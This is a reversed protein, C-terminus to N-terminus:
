KGKKKNMQMWLTTGSGILAIISLGLALTGKSDASNADTTADKGAMTTSSDKLDNVVKTKSFPGFESFDPNGNEDKPQEDETKTWSVVSGDSYTQEVKWQLETEEAPVQTSFMFFDKQHGPISNGSWVIAEPIPSVNGDDDPEGMKASNIVEINWGSKVVPTVFSIGEPIYLKVKTTAADKESPVGLTFDTFAGVGATNPKVVAHAFAQNVSILLTIFIGLISLSIKKM